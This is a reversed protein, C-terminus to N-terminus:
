FPSESTIETSGGLVLRLMEQGRSSVQRGVFYVSVAEPLLLFLMGTFSHFSNKLLILIEQHLRWSSHPLASPFILSTSEWTCFFFLSFCEM